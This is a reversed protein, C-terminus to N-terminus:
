MVKKVNINEKVLIMVGGGQKGKRNRYWSKYLKNGVSDPPIQGKLKTEVIGMIDPKSDKLYDNLENIGTILGNINTYAIKLKIGNSNSGRRGRKTGTYVM